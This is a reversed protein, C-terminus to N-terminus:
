ATHSPKFDSYVKEGFLGALFEANSRSQEADEHEHMVLAIHAALAYCNALMYHSDNHTIFGVAENVLGAASLIDGLLYEVYAHLYVIVNANDEFPMADLEATAKHAFDRASAARGDEAEMVSIASLTLRSLSDAHRKVPSSALSMDFAQRALLVGQHTQYRAIGLYYFYSQTQAPTGVADVVARSELFRLLKGYEHNRCLLSMRENLTQSSGVAYDSALSLEDLSIGLRKSLALLIMANPVYRGNEIESLMPQSCIGECAQVQTLGQNM